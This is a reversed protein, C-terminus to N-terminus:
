SSPFSCSRECKLLRRASSVRERTSRQFSSATYGGIVIAILSAAKAITGTFLTQISTIGSDFPSAHAALPFILVCLLLAAGRVLYLQTREITAAPIIIRIRTM